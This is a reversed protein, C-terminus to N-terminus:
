RDAWRRLLDTRTVIGELGEEESVVPLANFREKQMVRAADRVDRDPAVTEPDDTMADDVIGHVEQERPRRGETESRNRVIRKGKEEGPEFWRSFVIDSMTLIGVLSDGDELVPLQHIASTEMDEIAGSISSQPHLTEVDDSQLDHIRAKGKLDDAVPPLLDTETLMGELGEDRSVIPVGSVNRRVMEDVVEPIPTGPNAAYVDETMVERIRRDQLPSRKHPPLQYDSSFVLDSKTLIGALDAGDRVVPLKSVDRSIMESRAHHVSDEPRLAYVPGAMLDEADM